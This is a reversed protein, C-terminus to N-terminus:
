IKQMIYFVYGYYDHYKEYMDAETRQNKVLMEATSNGPHSNLFKEQASKQPIYYNTTWCETPLTLAAKFRYGSKLLHEIKQSTTEMEPYAEQWWSEIEAPRTETLWTSESVALYGGPKLFQHFYQLGKQFGINYIAGESWILDMSNQEFPLADMSGIKGSIRNSLNAQRAKESLREMFAPFLDIATIHGKTAKALTLTPTGCGCGVDAIKADPDTVIKPDIHELAKLTQEDGGPGQRKVGLFYECILNIDFSHFSDNENSM